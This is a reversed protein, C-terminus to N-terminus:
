HLVAHLVKPSRLEGMGPVHLRFYLLLHDFLERRLKAPLPPSPGGFGAGLVAVLAGSLPPGMLLGQERAQSTFRGEALDFRDEGLAPLAPGIGLREGLGALFTLPFQGIDEATDLFELARMVFDDLEPDAAEQRLVRVFVEQVFLAVSGRVPEAHIRQYPEAVRLERVPHLDREPHEDVVLELRNLPQLAAATIGKARSIRVLYARLGAHRTWAKLVVTHEGHRVTRLVVARTTLLM